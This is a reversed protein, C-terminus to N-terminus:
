PTSDSLCSVVQVLEAPSRFDGPMVFNECMGILARRVQDYEVLPVVINNTPPCRRYTSQEKDLMATLSAPATFPSAMIRGLLPLTPVITALGEEPNALHSRDINDTGQYHDRKEGEERRSQQRRRQALKYSTNTSGRSETHCCGPAVVIRSHPQQM